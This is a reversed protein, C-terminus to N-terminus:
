RCQAEEPSTDLMLVPDGVRVDTGPEACLEAVRGAAPAEIELTVKEAEVVFLPQGVTVTAGVQVLLEVLLGAEMGVEVSPMLVPRHAGM